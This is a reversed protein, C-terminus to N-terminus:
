QYLKVYFLVICKFVYQISKLNTLQDFSPMLFLKKIVSWYCQFGPKDVFVSCSSYYLLRIRFGLKVVQKM